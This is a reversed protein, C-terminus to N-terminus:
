FHLDIDANKTFSNSANSGILYVNFYKIDIGVLKSVNFIINQLKNHVDLKLSWDANENSPSNWLLKNLSNHPFDITSESLLSERVISSDAKIFNSVTKLINNKVTKIDFNKNQIDEWINAYERLISIYGFKELFKFAADHIHKTNNKRIKAADSKSMPVNTDFNRKNWVAIIINWSKNICKIIQKTIYDYLPDTTKLNDLIKSLEYPELIINRVDSIIDDVYKYSKKFFKDYPNYNKDYLTPGVEWKSNIVDYCGVSTMDIYPNPQYYLEFQYHQKANGIYCDSKNNKIYNKRYNARLTESFLRSDEKPITPIIFHLDIDSTDTYTNSTISGIIHIGYDEVHWNKAATKNMWNISKKSFLFDCLKRIKRKANNNLIYSGTTTKTWVLPSLSKVPIDLISENLM